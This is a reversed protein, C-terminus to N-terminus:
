WKKVFEKEWQMAREYDPHTKERRRFEPTHVRRRGDGDKEPELDAHLMEHYIVFRVFLEPVTECDLQPNIRIVRMKHDFSGFAIHRRRARTSPRRRAWTIRAEIRGGFFDRNVQEALTHLDYVRGRSCLRLQVGAGARVSDMNRDMYDRIASRSAPTPRRLFQALARLTAGDARVFMHHVSVSPPEDVTRGARMSVLSSTNDTVRLRLPAGYATQLAQHFERLEAPTPKPPETM